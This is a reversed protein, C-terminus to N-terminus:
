RRSRRKLCIHQSRVQHAKSLKLIQEGLWVIQKAYEFLKEFEQALEDATKLRELRARLEAKKEPTLNSQPAPTIEAM